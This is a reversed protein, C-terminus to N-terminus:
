FHLVVASVPPSLQSTRQNYTAAISQGSPLNVANVTDFTGTRSPYTMVQFSDGVNPVFGNVFRTTLTGALGANSSFAIRGIQGATLGAIDIALSSSAGLSFGSALELISGAAVDITGGNSGGGLLSLTGSQVDVTGTNNFAVGSFDSTTGAGQKTFTGANNFAHAGSNWLWFDGEGTVTFSAGALNSLVGAGVDVFFQLNSGSYSGTGWNELVRGLFKATSSTIDLTGGASVVTKGSGYMQGGSWTLSNTITV